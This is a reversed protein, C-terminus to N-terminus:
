SPPNEGSRRAVAPGFPGQRAKLVLCGQRNDLGGVQEAQRWNRKDGWARIVSVYTITNPKLGRKLLADFLQLVDDAGSEGRPSLASMLSSNGARPLVFFLAVAFCGDRSCSDGKIEKKSAPPVIHAASVRPAVAAQVTGEFKGTAERKWIFSRVPRVGAGFRKQGRHRKDWGLQFYPFGEM